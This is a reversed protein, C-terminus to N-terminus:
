NMTPESPRRRVGGLPSRKLMEVVREVRSRVDLEELVAQKERVDADVFAALLDCLAGASIDADPTLQEDKLVDRVLSTYLALLGQRKRALEADHKEAGGDPLIEVRATRYPSDSVIDLMRARCVGYLLLNYRGDDLRQDNIIRGIGVIDHIDPNGYYEPEWGPTFLAMAILREGALARETM